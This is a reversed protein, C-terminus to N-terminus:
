RRSIFLVIIRFYVEIHSINNYNTIMKLLHALLLIYATISKMTPLITLCGFRKDSFYLYCLLYLHPVLSFFIPLGIRLGTLSQWVHDLRAKFCDMSPTMVVGTRASKLYQCCEISVVTSPHKHSTTAQRPHLSAWAPDLCALHSSNTSISPSM